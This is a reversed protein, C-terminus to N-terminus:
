KNLSTGTLAKLFASLANKEAATLHLPRIDSDLGANPHGGGDYFNLVEQLSKLSGDHMYPGTVEIDRLTPTKFKGQDQRLGTVLGRGTGRPPEERTRRNWAVGTNHFEEDTFNSGSHCTACRAKGRFLRLGERQQSTLATKEGAEYRDYASNGSLLTRVYSALAFSLSRVEPSSGFVKHFLSDYTADNKLREIVDALETAMEKPNQIPQLVQEELSRIRGDWFFSRGYTRNIIAPTNRDGSQKKVGVAVRRGDSFARQPQHCDSCALSNDASLRKDFFLRRGLAVKEETFPNEPPALLGRDLGLPIQIALFLLIACM